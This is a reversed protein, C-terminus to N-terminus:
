VWVIRWFSSIFEKNTNSWKTHNGNLPDLNFQKTFKISAVPKKYKEQEQWQDWCHHVVKVWYEDYFLTDSVQKLNIWLNSNLSTASFCNSQGTKVFKMHLNWHDFKSQNIQRKRHLLTSIKALAQNPLMKRLSTGKANPFLKMTGM